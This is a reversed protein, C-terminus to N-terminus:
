FVAFITGSDLITFPEDVKASVVEGVVSRVPFADM